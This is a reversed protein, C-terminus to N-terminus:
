AAEMDTGAQVTTRSFLGIAAEVPEVLWVEQYSRRKDFGLRRLARGFATPTLAEVRVSSERGWTHFVRLLDTGTYGSGDGSDRLCQEAFQRVPDAEERYERIAADSSPPISFRAQDRLDRLGEVAWRLIGPLEAVLEHILTPNVEVGQFQRNFTLVVIRRFYGDTLDKTNPLSNMSAMFRVTTKFTRADQNFGRAEIAEGAVMSKIYGDAIARAPLDSCINLTKGATHARSFKNGLDSLAVASINQEGILGRVVDLLVSKGNSGEGVLWVMRQQSTDPTILYGLWQRLFRIKDSKDEDPEFVQDLFGLFRPCEAVPNWAINLRNQLRHEPSHPVVELTELDLTGNDLCVYHGANEAFFEGTQGVYTKSFETLSRVTGSTADHALITLLPQKVECNLDLKRYAGADYGWFGDQAFAIGEPYYRDVFAQAWIREPVDKKKNVSKWSVLEAPSKTPYGDPKLCNRGQPCRMAGAARLESCRAPAQNRNSVAQLQANLAESDLDPHALCTKRIVRVGDAFKGANSVVGDFLNKPMHPGGDGLCDAVLSCHGAIYGIGMPLAPSLPVSAPTPTLNTGPM